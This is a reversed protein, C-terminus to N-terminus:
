WHQFCNHQVINKHTHVYVCKNVCTSLALRENSKVLESTRDSITINSKEFALYTDVGDCAQYSDLHGIIIIYLTPNSHTNSVWTFCPPSSAGASSSSVASSCRSCGSSARKVWNPWSKVWIQDFITEPDSASRHLVRFLAPLACSARTHRLTHPSTTRTDVTKRCDGFFRWASM